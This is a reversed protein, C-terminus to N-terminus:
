QLLQKVRIDRTAADAWDYAQDLHDIIDSENMADMQLVLDYNQGDSMRRGTVHVSFRM